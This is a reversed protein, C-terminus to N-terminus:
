LAFYSKIFDELINIEMNNTFCSTVFRYLKYGKIDENSWEYFSAKSQYLYDAMEKPMRVFVENAEVLYEIQLNYKMFVRALDQAYKNASAANKLWLENEFYALWQCSFFRMKSTLQGMRKQRYDADYAYKKNFYIVAEAAMAGNKTAGFSLVDIGSKWTLEAPTCGIAVLANTFRAGDM